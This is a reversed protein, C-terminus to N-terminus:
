FPTFYEDNIIDLIIMNYARTEMNKQANRHTIEYFRWNNNLEVYRTCTKDNMHEIKRFNSFCAWSFDAISSPKFREFKAIMKYSKKPPSFTEEVCQLYYDKGPVLKDRPIEKM